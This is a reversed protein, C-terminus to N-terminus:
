PLRGVNVGGIWEVKCLLQFLGGAAHRVWRRRGRDRGGDDGLAEAHEWAQQGRRLHIANTPHQLVLVPGALVGVPYALFAAADSWM